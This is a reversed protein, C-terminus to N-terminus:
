TKNKYEKYSDYIKQLSIGRFAQRADLFPIYKWQEYEITRFKSLYQLKYTRIAFEFKSSTARNFEKFLRPNNNVLSAIIYKRNLALENYETKEEINEFFSKYVNWYAQFFNLREEKPLLNLNLGKITKTLPNYSTCFLIPTFDHFEIPKGTRNNSLQMLNNENLYFFIYVLGPLAPINLKNLLSEQDTSEVDILKDKGKLDLDLYNQFIREHAVKEIDDIKKYEEHILIPSEM